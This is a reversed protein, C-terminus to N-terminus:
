ALFRAKLIPSDPTSSATHHGRLTISDDDHALHRYCSLFDRWLLALSPASLSLMKATGAIM